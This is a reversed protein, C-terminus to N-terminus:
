HRMLWHFKKLIVPQLIAKSSFKVGDFDAEKSFNAKRFNAEGSFYVAYDIFLYNM